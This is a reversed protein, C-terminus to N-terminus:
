TNITTSPSKTVLLPQVGSVQQYQATLVDRALTQTAAPVILSDHVSYSPVSHERKLRLMTTIVAESERYMLRAWVNRRQAIRTMAPYAELVKAQVATLPHDKGLKRGGSEERYDEVMNSPWRTLSRGSTGWMRVVLKKVVERADERLGPLVYPDRLPDLHQGQEALYITLFSAKIDIEVVAESNITMRLRQEQPLHQYTDENSSHSYLRGGMDWAFDPDDGCNFVRIYGRHAGGGLEVQDLFDNLEVVEAELRETLETKAFGIRKGRQKEGAELTSTTKLVLPDRPKTSLVFHDRAQDASVGFEAAMALLKPTARFRGAMSKAVVPPGDFAVFKRYQKRHEILGLEKFRDLVRKFPRYAVEQGTFTDKTLARFVWGNGDDQHGAARLLDGLLGEVALLMQQKTDAYSGRPGQDDAVVEAFVERVLRQAQATRARSALGAYTAAMLADRLTTDPTDVSRKGEVVM